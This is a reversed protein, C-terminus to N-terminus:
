LKVAIKMKLVNDNGRREYEVVDMMQKCIFIGLGGIDRDEISATIDPDPKALPDFAVGGDRFSVELQQNDNTVVVQVWTSGSYCLINEEVEEVCLRVKFKLDESLGSVEPCSMVAEIIEANRGEIPDFKKSFM